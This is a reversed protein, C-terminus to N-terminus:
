LYWGRVQKPSNALGLTKCLRFIQDQDSPDQPLGLDDGSGSGGQNDGNQGQLKKKIAEIAAQYGKDFEEKNM